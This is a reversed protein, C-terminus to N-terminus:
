TIIQALEGSVGHHCDSSEDRKDRAANRGEKQEDRHHVIAEELSRQESSM